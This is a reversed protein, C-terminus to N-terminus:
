RKTLLTRRLLDLAAAAAQERVMQRDGNFLHQENARVRGCAAAIHVLGVPKEDTGGGPGAIGSVAVGVDAGVLQRVGQAMECVAEVSVAGFRQLTRAKVGCVLLKLENSYAVVGGRFYDSSGSVSTVLYAVLGGTCSEATALTLRRNRLLEGAVEALSREGVEYVATDFLRRTRAALRSVEAASRARLVLDVGSTSPYYAATAGLTRRLLPAVLQAMRSEPVGIVRVKVTHHSATGFRARLLPLANRAVARFEAPVGPLMILLRSGREVVIGPVMGVPNDLLRAGEPVLAQRRALVPMCRGRRRYRERVKALTVPDSALRLRLEGAVAALTRDDPTPGLGGCVFVVDARTARLAARIARDDDGVVTVGRLSLGMDALLRGLFATNTDAIRGSLLEDGVVVVRASPRSM